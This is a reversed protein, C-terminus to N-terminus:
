KSGFSKYVAVAVTAVFIVLIFCLSTLLLSRRSRSLYREWGEIGDAETFATETQQLYESFNRFLRDLALIRLGGMIVFLPAVWWAWVDRGAPPHLALFGWVVGIAVIVNREVSRADAITSVIETRLLSHEQLAFQAAHDIYKPSTM